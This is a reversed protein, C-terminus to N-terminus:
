EQLARDRVRVIPRILYQLVTKRGALVDVEAIMGPIIDVPAGAADLLSGETRAEIVFVHEEPGGRSASNPRPTASAAIRTIHAGLGGYRSYDYATLKVRVRQDPRISGIDKPRIYAEILLSDDLPVIEALAQGPSAVGGQTTLLVRNVIGRVPSRIEARMVRQGLAPLSPELESLQATATALEALSEARFNRELSDIRQDIEALASEVRPVATEAENRRGTWESEARRLSILSTEPEIRRRVLPAVIGIEENIHALMRQATTLSIRVAALEQLRQDRQRELVSLEARRAAARGLFHARETAVVAPAAALLEPLFTLDTGDIQAQLRAIRARLAMARQLGQDYQSALLTRDLTFLLDGVAVISGERVVIEEVVGGEAAQVVQVQRSPIVRGDARTVDDVEAIAAWITLSVMLLIIVILLASAGFQRQGHTQAVFDKFERATTM